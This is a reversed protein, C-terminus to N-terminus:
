RGVVTVVVDTTADGGAASLRYHLFGIDGRAMSAVGPASLAIPTGLAVFNTGDNGRQITVVEASTTGTLQFTIKEAGPMQFDVNIDGDQIRAQFKRLGGIIVTNEVVTYNGTAM